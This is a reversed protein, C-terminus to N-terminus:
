LGSKLLIKEMRQASKLETEVEKMKCTHSNTTKLVRVVLRIKIDALLKKNAKTSVPNPRLNLKVRM